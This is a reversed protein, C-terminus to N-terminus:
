RLTMNDGGICGGLPAVNQCRRKQYHPKVVIRPVAYLGDLGYSNVLSTLLRDKEVEFYSNVLIGEIEFQLEDSSSRSTNLSQM